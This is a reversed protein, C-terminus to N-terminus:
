VQYIYLKAQKFQTSLNAIEKAIDKIREERGKISVELFLKSKKHYGAKIKSRNNELKRKKDSEQRKKKIRAPRKAFGVDDSM